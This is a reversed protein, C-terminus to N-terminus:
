RIGNLNFISSREAHYKKTSSSKYPNPHYNPTKNFGDHDELDM